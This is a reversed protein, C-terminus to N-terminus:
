FACPSCSSELVIVRLCLFSHVMILQLVLTTCLVIGGCQAALGLEKAAHIAKREQRAVWVLM